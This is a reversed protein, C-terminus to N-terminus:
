SQKTIRLYTPTVKYFIIYTWKHYKLTILFLPSILLKYGDFKEQLKIADSYNKFLFVWLCVIGYHYYKKILVLSSEKFDNFTVNFKEKMEITDKM